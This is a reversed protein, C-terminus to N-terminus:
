KIRKSREEANDMLQNMLQVIASDPTNVRKLNTLYHVESFDISNPDTLDVDKTDIFGVTINGSLQNKIQKYNASSSGFFRLPSCIVQYRADDAPSFNHIYICASKFREISKEIDPYIILIYKEDAAEQICFRFWKSPDKECWTLMHDRLEKARDVVLVPIPNDNDLLWLCGIIDVKPTSDLYDQLDQVAGKTFLKPKNIDVLPWYSVVVYLEPKNM